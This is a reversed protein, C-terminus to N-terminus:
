PVAISLLHQAGTADTARLIISGGNNFSRTQAPSGLVTSLVTFTQVTSTGLADGERLLLRLAGTSDTAWLGMDNATTTGGNAVKAVFLPGRGEPLALSTFSAWTTGAPTEAAHAGERAILRM